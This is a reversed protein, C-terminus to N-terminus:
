RYRGIQSFVPVVVDDFDGAWQVYEEQIEIAQVIEDADQTQGTRGAHRDRIANLSQTMARVDQDLTQVLRYFKDKDEIKDILEKNKLYPALPALILSVGSVAASVGNLADWILPAQEQKRNNRKSM